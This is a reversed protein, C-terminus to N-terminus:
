DRSKRCPFVAEHAPGDDILDIFEGGGPAGDLTVSQASRRATLRYRSGGVTLEIAAEDWEEPLLANLRARQARKDLGMLHTFALRCLWAAAGTYWTWGGRGLHPPEGFVDAAVAYPEVRYRQAQEATSAHSVPLLMRFAKWARNAQGLGAWGMVGWCAGHTYQGGNERVGPPYAAIYGPNIHEGSFPPTLLKIVGAREDVLRRWAEDMAQATRAEDLGAAVAWGQAILDIRCGGADGADSGMIQGGRHYARRYWRGDWGSEEVARKMREGLTLLGEQEEPLACWDAFDRAVVSLFEGLWVSEGADSGGVRNMGDNWDGSGILPLGHPGLRAAREIARICHMRLSDSRDSTQAPAYVDDEDEPLPLDALYPIVEDLVSRDGTERVYCATVYPLFLLDDSIRTRVGLAPPHWWHMVDGSEFQKSACLLLHDRVRGPEIPLLCLMDQLQDRFGYAGGAQYLGARAYLRSALTQYPLFRNVMDNVMADPTRLAARSLLADWTSLTQDLRARAGAELFRNRLAACGEISACYGLLLAEERTERAGIDLTLKLAGDDAQAGPLALFAVGEMAGRAILMDHEQAVETLRAEEAGAGMLFRASASLTLKRARDSRNELRMLTCLVNLEGDVFQTLTWNLGEAGSEFRSAGQLHTARAPPAVPLLDAARGTAPEFLQLAQSFGERLPDGAFPSIRSLRSNHAWCFGGGRESVIAGFRPNALPNCWATPTPHGPKLEVQYGRGGPLFGGWGNFHLLKTEPPHFFARMPERRAAARAPASLLRKLQAAMSGSNGDLVLAGAKRILARQAGTLSQGELLRAGGPQGHLERLHCTDILAQLQDRVPQLYDNGYDNILILDCWVGMARYFEHARAASQALGMQEKSGIFTAIIPLDGSIGLAWLAALSLKEETAEYLKLQPYFLFASARQLLHHTQADISLFDLMARAQTGALVRARAASDGAVRELVAEIEQPTDSVCTLLTLTRRDGPALAFRARLAACPNLTYGLAGSLARPLLEARDPGGARGTLRNLDTEFSLQAGPPANIAYLLSPHARGDRANRTFLLAGPAIQESKVFLHQFAPHARLDGQPCLAVAFCGTVEIARAYAGANKLELHQRLAGDEPSVTTVLLCSVEGFSGARQVEGEGFQVRAGLNVWQGDVSVHVFLGDRDELLGDSFRNALVGRVMYFGGGRADIWCTAGAGHLLHGDPIAADPRGARTARQPVRRAAVDLSRHARELRRAPPASRAELLLRLARAEPIRAFHKVLKDGTLANAVAALIMGQHHAMHSKVVAHDAGAPLRAPNFDVAEYLGHEALWGRATMVELNRCAADPDVPLSLMSAYPAIVREDGGGRLSLASLGFAHYQYNMMLDFAFFGSESVGWGNDHAARQLRVVARNSDELLSGEGARLFLEPMLYEFLTGSWSILAHGTRARGLRFWHEVPAQKLAIAVFSLIRAESALLDYRADSVKDHEIDVGIYFLKGAEDYLSSFDMARALADMRAALEGGVASACLMMCAALNGGDVTSVYRPPLPCLSDLDYWNYLQGRWKDMSELTKVTQAMRAKMEDGGILQLEKAALCSLLYLGINTPSTRRAVGVPPDLQVNDPPLGSGPMPVYAEFFRWTRAALDRLAELQGGSLRPADERELLRLWGAGAFFILALGLAATSWGPRLCAPAALIALVRGPM